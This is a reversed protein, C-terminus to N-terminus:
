NKRGGTGEATLFCLFCLGNRLFRPPPRRVNWRLAGGGFWPPLLRVAGGGGEAEVQGGAGGWCCGGWVSAPHGRGHRLKCSRRAVEM